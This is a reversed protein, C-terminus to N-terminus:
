QYPTNFYLCKCENQFIGYRIFKEDLYIAGPYIPRSRVHICYILLSGGGRLPPADILQWLIM